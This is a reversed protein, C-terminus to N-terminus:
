VSFNKKWKKLSRIAKVVINPIWKKDLTSGYVRKSYKMTGKSYSLIFIKEYNETNLYPDFLNNAAESSKLSMVDLSKNKDVFGTLIEYINVPDDPLIYFGTDNDIVLENISKGWNTVLPILGAKMSEVVSVPLGEHFSPLIFINCKDYLSSIEEPAIFGHFYIRSKNDELWNKLKDDKFFNNGGIHWEFYYENDLLLKDLQLLISINKNKDTLQNALFAIKINEFKKKSFRIDQVPFRLYFLKSKISSNLNLLNSYIDESVTIYADIVEKHLLALDHYYKYNGHVVQVVPNQLGLNSVMGLELWDHAVLVAKEIPLCKSLQRCTYYFNWKPSYYFVLESTAGKLNLIDFSECEDQNITYIVHNEIENNQNYLLLNRIVSLVGGGSGNHFHFVQIM